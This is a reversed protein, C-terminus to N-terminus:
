AQFAVGVKEVVANGGGAFGTGERALFIIGRARDAVKTGNKSKAPTESLDEECVYCLLKEGPYKPKMVKEYCMKCIVHGCPKTLYADLVSGFVKECSPCARADNKSSKTTSRSGSRGDFQVALLGKLSLTHPNDPDSVPCLPNLKPTDPLKKDVSPALSPVWFASHKNKSSEKEEEHLIKRVKDKSEESIRALEEPDLELRRKSNGSEVTAPSETGSALELVASKDRRGLGSQLLEFEKIERQRAREEQESHLKLKQEHNQAIELTM